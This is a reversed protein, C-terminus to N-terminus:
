LTEFIAPFHKPKQFELSPLISQFANLQGTPRNLAKLVRELPLFLDPPWNIAGGMFALITAATFSGANPHSLIASFLTHLKQPTGSWLNFAVHVYQNLSRDDQLPHNVILDFSEKSHHALETKTRLTQGLILLEDNTVLVSTGPAVMYFSSLISLAPRHASQRPRNLGEICRLKHAHSLPVYFVCGLGFVLGVGQLIGRIYGFM